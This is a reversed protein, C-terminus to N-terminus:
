NQLSINEIACISPTIKSIYITSPGRQMQKGLKQEGRTRGATSRMRHPGIPWSGDSIKVGRSRRQYAAPVVHNAGSVPPGRGRLRSVRRSLPFRDDSATSVHALM